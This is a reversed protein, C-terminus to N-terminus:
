WWTIFCKSLQYNENKLWCLPSQKKDIYVQLLPLTGDFNLWDVSLTPEVLWDLKTPIYFLYDAILEVESFHIYFGQVCDKNLLNFEIPRKNYPVFLQAKFNVFQEFNQSKFGLANLVEKTEPKYLLPLQKNILKKLKLMLSDTRNPGIWYDLFNTYVQTDDYLYFKYAIELHIPKENQLLLVDLEGITQKNNRIQLNETIFEIGDIQQLQFATFIEIWKGLRLKKQHRETNYMSRSSSIKFQVLSKVADFNWLLPTNQFGKFRDKFGFEKQLEIIEKGILPYM